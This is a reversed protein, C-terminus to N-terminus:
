GKLVLPLYTQWPQFDVWFGGNLAYSKGGASGTMVGADPQGATGSVAYGDGTSAGGGGDITFWSLDYTLPARVQALTVTALALVLLVLSLLIILNRTKM